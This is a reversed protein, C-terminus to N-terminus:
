KQPKHEYRELRYEGTATTYRVAFYGKKDGPSGYEGNGNMNAYIAAGSAHTSTMAGKTYYTSIFKDGGITYGVDIVKKDCYVIAAETVSMLADLSLQVGKKSYRAIYEFIIAGTDCSFLVVCGGSGDSVVQRVSYTLGPANTGLVASWTKQTPAM